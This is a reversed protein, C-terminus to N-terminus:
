FRSFMRYGYLALLKMDYKLGHEVAYFAESAYLDDQSREKGYRLDAESIIGSKTKLYLAQWDQPLAKIQEANRLPVGIFGLNGAVINKLAPLFHFLFHRIGAVQGHSSREAFSTLRFIKWESTPSAVPLIVASYHYLLPGRRLMMLVLMILLVVPLMAVLLVAAIMRALIGYLWGRINSEALSGLIFEDAVEITSGLGIHVLLNKDVISQKIELGEGVYSRPSFLRM